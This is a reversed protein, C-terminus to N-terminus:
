KKEHPPSLKEGLAMARVRYEASKTPDKPLIGGIEYEHAFWYLAQYGGMNEQKAWATMAELLKEPRERLDRTEVDFKSRPHGMKAAKHLWKFGEDATAIRMTLVFYLHWMAETDGTEAMARLSATAYDAAPKLEDKTSIKIWASARDDYRQPGSSVLLARIEGAEKTPLGELSAEARALMATGDWTPKSEKRLLIAVIAASLLVAAALFLKLSKSM